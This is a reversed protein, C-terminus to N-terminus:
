RSGSPSALVFRTRVLVDREGAQETARATLYRAQALEADVEAQEALWRAAEQSRNAALRQALEMKGRALALGPAGDQAREIAGRSAALQLDPTPHSACGCLLAAAVLALAIRPGAGGQTIEIEM